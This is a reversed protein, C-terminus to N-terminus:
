KLYISKLDNYDYTTPITTTAAYVQQYMISNKEHLQDNLGLIHGIEHLMNAECDDYNAATYTPDFKIIGGTYVKSSKSPYLDTWGGAGPSLIDEMKVNVHAKSKDSTLNLLINIGNKNLGTTWKNLAERFIKVEEMYSSSNEFYFNISSQEWRGGIVDASVNSFGLFYIALLFIYIKSAKFIKNKM